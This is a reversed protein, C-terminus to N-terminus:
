YNRSCARGGPTHLRVPRSRVAAAFAAVVAAEGALEEADPPPSAAALLDAVRAYAPPADARALRGTLLREAMGEDLALRDHHARLLRRM